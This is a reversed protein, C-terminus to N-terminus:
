CAAADVNPHKLKSINSVIDVFEELSRGQFHSSDIKKVALVKGDAYKARYVRGISGEALLRGAAFNGTAAQLDSLSYAIARVSSSRWTITSTVGYNNGMNKFFPNSMAVSITHNPVSFARVDHTLNGLHGDVQQGPYTTIPYHSSMQKDLNFNKQIVANFAKHNADFADTSTISMFSPSVFSDTRKSREDQVAKFPMVQPLASVKNSFPWQMVSGRM